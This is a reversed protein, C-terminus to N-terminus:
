FFVHMTMLDYLCFNHNIECERINKASVLSDILALNDRGLLHAIIPAHVRSKMFRIHGETLSKISEVEEPGLVGFGDSHM